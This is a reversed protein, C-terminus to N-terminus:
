ILPQPNCENSACYTVFVNVSYPSSRKAQVFRVGEDVVWAFM